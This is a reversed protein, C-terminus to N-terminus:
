EGQGCKTFVCSAIGSVDEKRICDYRVQPKLHPLSIVQIDGLNTLVTVHNETHDEARCSGFTCVAAKRVRCGETATLKLKLKSSM